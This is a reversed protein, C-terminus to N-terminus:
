SPILPSFPCLAGHWNVSYDMNSKRLRSKEGGAGSGGSETGATAL